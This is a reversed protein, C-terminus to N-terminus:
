SGYRRKNMYLLKSIEDAANHRSEVKRQDYYQSYYNALADPMRTKENSPLDYYEPLYAHIENQLSYPLTDYGADLFDVGQMAPYDRLRSNLWMRRRKSDTAKAAELFRNFNDHAELEDGEELAGHLGEHLMTQRHPLHTYSRGKDGKVWISHPIPVATNLGAVEANNNLIANKNLSNYTVVPRERKFTNKLKDTLGYARDTANVLNTGRSEADWPHIAEAARVAASHVREVINQPPAQVESRVPEPKRKPNSWTAGGDFPNIQATARNILDLVGM